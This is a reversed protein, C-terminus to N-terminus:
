FITKASWKAKYIILGRLIKKKSKPEASENSTTASLSRNIKGTKTPNQSIQAAIFVNQADYSALGWFRNFESHRIDSSIKEDCKSSCLCPINHFTRAGIKNGKYNFYIKNSNRNIKNLKRTLNGHKRKRGKRPRGRDHTEQQSDHTETEENSQSDNTETIDAATTKHLLGTVEDLYVQSSLACNLPATEHDPRNSSMSPEQAFGSVEDLYIKPSVTDSLLLMENDCSDDSLNSNNEPSYNPDSDSAPSFDREEEKSSVSGVLLLMDGPSSDVAVSPM